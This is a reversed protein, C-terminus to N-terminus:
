QMKTQAGEVIVDNELRIKSDGQELTISQPAVLSISSTESAIDMNETTKINVAKDSTIKIGEDDLLEVSMGKNNTVLVSSPTFLVEKGYKNKISKYDPNERAGSATLHVASIVYAVHEKENPCYLRVEDGKEPMAYFGTGDGSSYVTSYPLWVAGSNQRNEDESVSVQVMDKSIGTINAALSAGIIKENYRKVTKFGNQTKLFYHHILEGNELMSHIEFVYLPKGHLLIPDAIDYIERDTFEYCAADKETLGEVGNNKKRIYEDVNKKVSYHTPNVTYSASRNPMGFFFKVGPMRYEAVLFSNFHSAQRITLEWDTEQYQLLWKQIAQGKGATMICDSNKYNKLYSDIVNKYTFGTNQFTRIHPKIDLRYSESILQAHAIKLGNQTTTKFSKVIGQFLVVEKNTEDRGLITTQVNELSSQVYEEEKEEPIIGEFQATAHQNVGKTINLKLLSLLRFPTILINSDRM